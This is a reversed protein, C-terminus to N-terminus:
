SIELEMSADFLYLYKERVKLGYGEELAKSYYEMQVKYLERLRHSEEAIKGMDFRNTKYDVLVLYEEGEDTREKFFCDIIGQTLVKEGDKEFELVFSKERKLEGREFAEAMRKGLGTKAFAAIKNKDIQSIEEETFIGKEVFSDCAGNVYELDGAYRLDLKEMIGHYIIGRQASNLKASERMFKPMELIPGSVLEGQLAEKDAREKSAESNLESVSYKSKLEGAKAYPYRYSMRRYVEEMIEKTPQGEYIGDDLPEIYRRNNSGDIHSDARDDTEYVLAEAPIVERKGPWSVMEYFSDTGKKNGILATAFLFDTPRTLAVYLVRLNEEYEEVRRKEEILRTMLTKKSWGEKGDVLNLAVGVDKHVSIGGGKQGTRNFGALIVMPFELGKSKHITMMRVLNDNESVIKSEGMSLNKNEEIKELYSIFSYLTGDGTSEFAGAKQVLARLNAQRQRGGPMAGAFIYFGSEMLIDWLWSSLPAKCLKDSWYDLKDMTDRVKNKLDLSEGNEGYYTMAKYYSMNSGAEARIRAMEDFSFNFIESHIVSLLEVDQRRNDIIKMLNLFIRIELTDFYGDGSNIYADIGENMLVNYVEAGYTRMARSLIVMDKLMLTRSQQKKTDYFQRGLNEKIIKAIALAEIEANKLDELADPKEDGDNKIEYLVPANEIHNEYEFGPYLKASNDYGAMVGQFTENVCNLIEPKSRFNRNLDIKVSKLDAGSAYKEYKDIFIEPEANRFKYISQKVDGVMFLNNDGAILCIVEEQLLNTDQYEDVFIYKFKDRYYAAVEPNKLMGISIHEIDNFDILGEERKYSQFIEDFEWILKGFFDITPKLRSMEELQEDLSMGRNVDSGRGKLDALFMEGIEKILKQGADRLGAVEDKIAAYREAEEPRSKKAVSFRVDKLFCNKCIGDWDRRDACSIINMANDLRDSQLAEPYKAIESDKLIDIAQGFLEAAKEARERAMSFVIDAIGSKLFEEKSMNLNGAMAEFQEKYDPLNRLYEHYETILREVEHFNRGNSYCDMFEIFEDSPDEFHKEILENIAQEKMLRTEAEDALTFGPELNEALHFFEKIVTLAFSHFTSIQARPLLELQEKLIATEAEDHSNNIAEKIAKRIKAKMESAAAKTFTVILMKDIPTKEFSEGKDPDYGLIIRVIREVLVATKGSGAAAAVLINKERTNIAQAQETNWKM